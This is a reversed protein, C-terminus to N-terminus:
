NAKCFTVISVCFSIDQSLPIFTTAGHKGFVDRVSTQKCRKEQRPASYKGEKEIDSATDGRDVRTEAGIQPEKLDNEILM